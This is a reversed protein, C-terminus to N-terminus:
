DEVPSLLLEIRKAFELQAPTLQAISNETSCAALAMKQELISEVM